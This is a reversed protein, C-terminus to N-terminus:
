NNKSKLMESAISHVKEVDEQAIGYKALVGGDEMFNSLYGYDGDTAILIGLAAHATRASIDLELPNHSTYTTIIHDSDDWNSWNGGNTENNDEVAEILQTLNM